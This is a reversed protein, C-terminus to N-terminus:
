LFYHMIDLSFARIKYQNCTVKDAAPNLAATFVKFGLIGCPLSGHFRNVICTNTNKGYATIMIDTGLPYHQRWQRGMKFRQWTSICQKLLCVPLCNGFKVYRVITRIPFLTKGKTKHMFINKDNSKIDASIRLM